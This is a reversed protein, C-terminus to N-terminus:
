IRILAGPPATPIPEGANEAIQMRRRFIELIKEPPPVPVFRFLKDKGVDYYWSYHEPLKEDMDVPMYEEMTKKDRFSNLAFTQIFDAESLTFTDVKVPRQSLSIVPIRKSRGQTLIARYGTNHQGIMYAEDIYLGCNEHEWIRFLHDTIEDQQDPLPRVIYLGPEDPVTRLDIQRAPLEAILEDGKFDYIIWPKLDWDRQSLMWAALVTKGCGTRGVIAHRHTDNPFRIESAM